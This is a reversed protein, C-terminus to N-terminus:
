RSPASGTLVSEPTSHSTEELEVPTEVLAERLDEGTLRYILISHGVNADPERQRLFAYLRGLRFAEFRKIM